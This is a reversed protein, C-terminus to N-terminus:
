SSKRRATVREGARRLHEDEIQRKLPRAMAPPMAAATGPEFHHRLLDLDLVVGAYQGGSGAGRRGKAQQALRVAGEGAFEDAQQGVPDRLLVTLQQIHAREVPMQARRGDPLPRGSGWSPVRFAPLSMTRALFAAYM